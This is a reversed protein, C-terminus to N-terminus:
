KEGFFRKYLYEAGRTLLLVAAGSIFGSIIRSEIDGIDVMIATASAAVSALHAHLLHVNEKLWDSIDNYNLM